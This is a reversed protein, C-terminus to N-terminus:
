SVLDWVLRVKVAMTEALMDLSTMMEKLIVFRLVIHESLIVEIM